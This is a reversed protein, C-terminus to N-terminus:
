RAYWFLRRLIESPWEYAVLREESRLRSGSFGGEQSPQHTIKDVGAVQNMACVLIAAEIDRFAMRIRRSARGIQPPIRFFWRGAVASTHDQGSRGGPEDRM